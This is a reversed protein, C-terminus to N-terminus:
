VTIIALILLLEIKLPIISALELLPSPYEEILQSISSM